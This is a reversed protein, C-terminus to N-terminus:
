SKTIKKYAKEFAKEFEGFNKYHWKLEQWIEKFLKQKPNDGIVMEKIIKQRLTKM